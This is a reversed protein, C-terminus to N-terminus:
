DHTIEHLIYQAKTQGNPIFNTHQLVNMRPHISLWASTAIACVLNTGSLMVFDEESARQAFAKFVDYLKSMKAKSQVGETMYIVDGFEEAADYQFNPNYNTVYVKPM